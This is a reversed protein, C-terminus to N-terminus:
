YHHCPHKSLKRPAYKQALKNQRRMSKLHNKQDATKRESKHIRKDERKYKKYVAYEQDSNSTSFELEPMSSFELEPMSSNYFSFPSRYFIELPRQVIESKSFDHYESVTEIDFPTFDISKVIGCKEGETSTTLNNDMASHSALQLLTSSFSSASEIEERPVIVDRSIRPIIIEQLTYSMLQLLERYFSSATQGASDEPGATSSFEFERAAPPIGTPNPARVYTSNPYLSSYNLAIRNSPLEITSSRIKPSDSVVDNMGTILYQKILDLSDTEFIRKHLTLGNSCTSIRVDLDGYPVVDVRIITDTDLCGNITILLKKLETENLSKIFSNWQVEYKSDFMIMNSLVMEPTLLYNGSLKYDLESPSLTVMDFLEFSQALYQHLLSEEDNLDGITISRLYEEKSDFELGLQDFEDETLNQIKEATVPDTKSLLNLLDCYSYKQGTISELISFHFHYPLKCGSVMCMGIFRAFIDINQEQEWFDNELNPKACYTNTRYLLGDNLLNSAVLHYIHKNAGPGYGYSKDTHAQFKLLTNKNNKILDFVDKWTHTQYNYEFVKRTRFPAISFDSHYDPSSNPENIPEHSYFPYDYEYDM